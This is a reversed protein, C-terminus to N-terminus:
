IEEFWDAHFQFDTEEVFVRGFYDIEKITLLKGDLAEMQPDIRGPYGPFQGSEYLQRDREQQEQDPCNFKYVRGVYVNWQKEFESFRNIKSDDIFTGPIPGKSIESYENEIGNLSDALMREANDLNDKYMRLLSELAKKFHDQKGGPDKGWSITFKFNISKM